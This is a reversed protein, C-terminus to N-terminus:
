KLFFHFFKQDVLYRRLQNTLKPLTLAPTGSCKPRLQNFQTQGAHRHRLCIATKAHVLHIKNQERLFAAKNGQRFWQYLLHQHSNGQYVTKRFCEPCFPQGSNCCTFRLHQHTEFLILENSICM